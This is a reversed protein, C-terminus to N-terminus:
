PQINGSDRVGREIGSLRPSLPEKDYLSIDAWRERAQEPTLEQPPEASSDSKIYVPGSNPSEVALPSTVGAQNIVKVLFIRTGSEILEPKAQGREVRVRSEANIEVTVLVRKDLTEEIMRVAAAEDTGALADNIRRQDEASLPAGLYSLASEIQRANLALPQLAPPEQAAVPLVGWFIALAVLVFLPFFRKTIKM